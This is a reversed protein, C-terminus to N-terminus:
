LLSIALSVISGALVTVIAVSKSNTDATESEDDSPSDELSMTMCTGLTEMCKSCSEMNEADCVLDKCEDSNYMGDFCSICGSSLESGGYCEVIESLSAGMICDLFSEDQVAQQMIMADALTCTDEASCKTVALAFVPLIFKSM